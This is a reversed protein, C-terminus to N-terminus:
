KKTLGPISTINLDNLIKEQAYVIEEFYDQLSFQTTSTNSEVGMLQHRVFLDIVSSKMGYKHLEHQWFSRSFNANLRLRDPWWETLDNSGLPFSEGDTTIGFFLHVKSKDIVQRIQNQLKTNKDFGIKELRKDLSSYHARWLELQKSLVDNIPVPLEGPFQGTRKDFISAFSYAEHLGNASFRFENASRSGLCLISLSCCYKAFSNHHKILSILTYRRGPQLNSVEHRMWEFLAAVAIQTAAV